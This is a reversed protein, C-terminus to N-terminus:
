RNRSLRLPRVSGSALVHGKTYVRKLRKTQTFSIPSSLQHTKMLAALGVFQVQEIKHENLWLANARVGKTRSINDFTYDKLGYITLDKFEKELSLCGLKDDDLDDKLNAYGQANVVLSDTDCYYCNVREAKCIAAYLKMRAYSTIFASIAPFSERSESEYKLEQVLGGFRRIMVVKDSGYIKDPIVEIIDPDCTGITEFVRGRQAFKGYFRALLHKALWDGVYDDRRKAEARLAYIADVFEKFLPAREYVAVAEIRTVHGHAMAYDFEPGCLLTSFRGVPFVLKDDHVLPYAAENTQLDLDVIVDFYQRWEELKKLNLHRYVGVLKCPFEHERMVSPYMSNFDLYYFEGTFHGIKFCETRAGLYAQRAVDLADQNCDIFIPHKMFRHRFAAMAQSAITPAFGGLDNDRLFKFWKLVAQRIVEVDRKGYADWKQRSATKKPMPLKPLQISDGIQELPMGWINITDVFKITAIRKRKMSKRKEYDVVTLDAGFYDWKCWTIILVGSDVIANLLEFDLKPLESFANMVPLDFAGNHAFLYLRTKTRARETVWLWFPKIKDFRLWQEPEWKEGKLRRQYCAYGFWLHHKDQQKENKTQKTETDFWVCNSPIQAAKNHSIYHPVRPM